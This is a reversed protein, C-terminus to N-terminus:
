LLMKKHTVVLLIEVSGRFGLCEGRDYDIWEKSKQKASSKWRLNGVGILGCSTEM